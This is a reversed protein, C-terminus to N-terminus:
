ELSAGPGEWVARIAPRALFAQRLAPDDLQDVIYVLEARAAAHYQAAQVVEGAASAVAALTRYIRWLIRRTGTTATLERAEDLAQRAGVLDGAALRARGQLELADALSTSPQEQRMVAVAGDAHDQAPRGEALAWEGCAMHLYFRLTPSEPLLAAVDPNAALAAVDAWAAATARVRLRLGLLNDQSGPMKAALHALQQLVADARAPLGLANYILTQLSASNVQRLVFGSRNALDFCQEAEARAATFRGQHYLCLGRIYRANAQGWLNGIGRSVTLAEDALALAAPYDRTRIYFGARSALADALMTLNGLTRWRVLVEASVAAAEDYRELALYCHYLDNLTFAIQEALDHARALALAAEGAALAAPLDQGWRYILM